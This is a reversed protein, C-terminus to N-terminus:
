SLYLTHLGKNNIFSFNLFFMREVNFVCHRYQQDDFTSKSTPIYVHIVSGPVCLPSNIRYLVPRCACVKSHLLAGWVSHLFGMLLPLGILDTVLSVVSLWSRWIYQQFLYENDLLSGIHKISKPPDM